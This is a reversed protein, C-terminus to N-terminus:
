SHIADITRSTDGRKERDRRNREAERRFARQWSFHLKCLVAICGCLMFFTFCLIALEITDM